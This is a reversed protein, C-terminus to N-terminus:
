GAEADGQMRDLDRACFQHHAWEEDLVTHLCHLVSTGTAYPPWGPADPVPAESGLGTSGVSGLWDDLRAAQADRVALVEELMPAAELDLGGSRAAGPPSGGHRGLGRAASRSGALLEAPDASRLLPRVSHRRDLEAEVYGTVEVGNVVLNTVLGGILADQMVVGILRAGTLDAERFEADRLDTGQFRAM